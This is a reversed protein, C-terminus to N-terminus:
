RVWLHEFGRSTSKGFIKTLDQIPEIQVARGRVGVSPHRKESCEQWRLSEERSFLGMMVVSVFGCLYSSLHPFNDKRNRSGNWPKQRKAMIPARAKEALRSNGAAVKSILVTPEPDQSTYGPRM